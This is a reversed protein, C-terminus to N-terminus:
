NKRYERPSLGVYSKFLHNFNSLSHFGCSEAIELISKDTNTLMIKANSIRIRILFDVPTVGTFTKFHNILSPVSMSVVTSLEALTISDRFNDELYAIVTKMKRANQKQTSLDAGAGDDPTYYRIMITMLKLLLSKMMLQFGKEKAAYEQDMEYIVNAILSSYPNKSELKNGFRGDTEWFPRVYEYDIPNSLGSWLFSPDFMIVTMVLDHDDHCLHIENNNIIFCDGKVFDFDKENIRYKGYGNKIYCIEMEKHWHLKRSCEDVGYSDCYSFPFDKNGLLTTKKIQTM